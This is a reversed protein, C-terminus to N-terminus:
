VFNTSFIMLYMKRQTVNKWFDNRKHYFTPFCPTALRPVSSLIILRMRKTRQFVLALSVYECYTISIAKGCCFHNGSRAEINREVSM